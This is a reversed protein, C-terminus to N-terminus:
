RYTVDQDTFSDYVRGDEVAVPESYDENMDSPASFLKHALWALGLFVIISMLGQVFMSTFDGRWQTGFSPIVIFWALALVVNGSNDQWYANLGRILKGVVFFGLTVGLWGFNMYLEGYPLNAVNSPPDPDNFWLRTIVAGSAIPKNPWVSRPIWFCFGPVLGRGYIYNSNEPIEYITFEFVEYNIVIGGWFEDINKSSFVERSTGAHGHVREGRTAGVLLILSFGVTGTLAWFLFKSFLNKDLIKTYYIFAAVALFLSVLPRRSFFFKYTLFFMVVLVIFMFLKFFIRGRYTFLVLLSVLSLTGLSGLALGQAVSYMASPLNRGLLIFVAAGVSCLIFILIVQVPSLTPAVKPIFRKIGSGRGAYLGLTYFITGLIIILVAPGQASIGPREYLALGNGLVSLPINGLFGVWSIALPDLISGKEKFVYVCLMLIGYVLLFIGVAILSTDM